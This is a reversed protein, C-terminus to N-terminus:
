VQDRLQDLHVTRGTRASEAAAGMVRATAIADTNPLMPAAGDFLCDHFHDLSPTFARVGNNLTARETAQPTTLTYASEEYPHTPQEIHLSGGSGALQAGRVPMADFTGFLTAVVADPFELLLGIHSDVGGQRTERWAASVRVPETGAAWRAVDILYCGIDALAGGGLDPQWRINGPPLPGGMHMAVHRLDGIAGADLLRRLRLTQPHYRFVMAEMLLVGHRAAADVMRQAAAPSTALPKECFVHKGHEMARIAWEEHLSNPLPVYVADIRDSWLLDDYSAFVEPIELDRAFAAARERNRSAVGTLEGRATARLAPAFVWRGIQATSVIGWRVKDSKVQKM